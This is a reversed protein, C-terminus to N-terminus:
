SCIKDAIMYLNNQNLKFLANNYNVPIYTSKTTQDNELFLLNGSQITSSTVVTPTYLILRETNDFVSFDSKSGLDFKTTDINQENFDFVNIVESGSSDINTLLINNEYIYLVYFEFPTIQFINLLSINSFFGVKSSDFLAFYNNTSVYVNLNNSKNIQGLIINNGVCVIIRNQLVNDFTSDTDFVIQFGRQDIIFNEQNSNNILYSVQTTQGNSIRFFYYINGNPGVKIDFLTKGTITPITFTNKGYYLKGLNSVIFDGVYDFYKLDSITSVLKSFVSNNFDFQFINTGETCSSSNIGCTDKCPINKYDIFGYEEFSSYKCYGNCENSYCDTNEGCPELIKQVPSSFSCVNDICTGSDCKSNSCDSGPSGTIYGPNQCINKSCVLPYDCVNKCTEGLQSYSKCTGSGPVPLGTGDFICLESVCEESRSCKENEKLLCVTGSYDLELDIGICGLNPDPASFIENGTDLVNLCIKGGACVGSDCESNKTCDSYLGLKCIGNVCYAPSECGILGSSCSEGAKQTSVLGPAPNEGFYIVMVICVILTFIIGVVLVIINM